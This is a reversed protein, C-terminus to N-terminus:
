TEYLRVITSITQPVSSGVSDWCSRIYMDYANTPGGGGSQVPVATIWLGEASPTAGLNVRSHYSASDFVGSLNVRTVQSAGTPGAPPTLNMVFSNSPPASPCDTFGATDGASALNSRIDDWAATRNDRAYRLLEAQADIQQRVLTVELSRQGIALSRNMLVTTSVAVLAFIAFALMVEIITDGRQRSRNLM